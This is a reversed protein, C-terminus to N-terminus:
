YFVGCDSIIRISDDCVVTNLTGVDSQWIAIPKSYALRVPLAKQFLEAWANVKGTQLIRKPTCKIRNKEYRVQLTYARLEYIGGEKAPTTPTYWPFPTLM